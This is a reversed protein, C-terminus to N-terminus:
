TSDGSLKHLIKNIEAHFSNSLELNANAIDKIDRELCAVRELLLHVDIDDEREKVKAETYRNVLWRISLVLAVLAATIGSIWDSM